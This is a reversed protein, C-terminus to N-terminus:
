SNILEDLRPALSWFSEGVLPDSECDNVPFAARESGVSIQLSSGLPRAEMRSALFRRGGTIAVSSSAESSSCSEKALPPPIVSCEGVGAVRGGREDGMEFRPECTKAQSRRREEDEVDVEEDSSLSRLSDKKVKTRSSLLSLVM